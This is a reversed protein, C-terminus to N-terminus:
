GPKGDIRPTAYIWLSRLIWPLFAVIWGFAAFALWLPADAAVEAYIRALAVLQLLGFTLWAIGGMELPRGSHGQTVRTVMAVLMSGFFGITLAHVPARGLLFGGDLFAIFSQATYLAFALPLWAFALYLAGLLGPKRCKWPQWALWHGAFFLALPADVMWLWDQYHGLELGLHGLLLLWPAALSWAPRVMRYGPGVANASFFPLM